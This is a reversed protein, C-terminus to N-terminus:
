IIFYLMIMTVKFRTRLQKGVITKAAAADADALSIGDEAQALLLSQGFISTAETCYIGMVLFAGASNDLAALAADLRVVLDESITLGDDYVPSLVNYDLATCFLYIM